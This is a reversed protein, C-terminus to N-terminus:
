VAREFLVNSFGHIDADIIKLSASFQGSNRTVNLLNVRFPELRPLNLDDRGNVINKLFITAAKPICNVDGNHCLEFESASTSM